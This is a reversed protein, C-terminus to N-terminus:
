RHMSGNLPQLYSGNYASAPPYVGNQHHHHPDQSHTAAPYQLQGTASQNMYGATASPPPTTQPSVRYGNFPPPAGYQMSMLSVNPSSAPSSSAGRSQHHHGGYQRVVAAASQNTQGGSAQQYLKHYAVASQQLLHAAASAPPPTMNNPAAPSSSPSPTPSSGVMNHHHHHRRHHELGNTMQQLKSLNCSAIQAAAAAAAAAAHQNSHSLYFDSSGSGQQGVMRHQIVSHHYASSAVSPQPPMMYAAAAAAAAATQHHHHYPSQPHSPSLATSQHQQQQQQQQASSAVQTQHNQQQAALRRQESKKSRSKTSHVPISVSTTSPPLPPPVQTQGHHYQTSHALRHQLSLHMMSPDSYPSQQMVSSYLLNNDISKPLNMIDKHDKSINTNVSDSKKDFYSVDKSTKSPEPHPMVLSNNIKQYNIFGMPALYDHIRPKETQSIVETSSRYPLTKPSPTTRKSQKEHKNDYKPVTASNNEVVISNSYNAESTKLKSQEGVKFIEESSNTSVPLAQTNKNYQVSDDKNNYIQQKNMEPQLMDLKRYENLLADNYQKVNSQVVTDTKDYENLHSESGYRKVSTPSIILDSSPKCYENTIISNSYPKENASEVAQTTMETKAFNSCTTSNNFIRIESEVSNEKFKNPLVQDDNIGTQILNVKNYNNSVNENEKRNTSEINNCIEMKPQELIVRNVSSKQSKELNHIIEKTNNPSEKECESLNKQFVINSSDVIDSQNDTISKPVNSDSIMDISNVKNHQLKNKDFNDESNTNIAIDIIAESCHINQETITNSEFDTSKQLCETTNNETNEKSVNTDMDMKNTVDDNEEEEFTSKVEM